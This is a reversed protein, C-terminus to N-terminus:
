FDRKPLIRLHQGYAPRPLRKRDKRKRKEQEWSYRLRLM